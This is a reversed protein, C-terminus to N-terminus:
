PLDRRRERLHPRHCGGCIGPEALEEALATLESRPKGHGPSLLILPLSHAGGAPRADTFANTRVKSLTGAPIDTIEGDKLLLESETPTMYQARHRGPAKAPYWLSLMLERAKSSPLWPDPRSTDKLYLSTTGAPRSGTPAPLYLEAAAITEAATGAAATEAHGLGTAAMAAILGAAAALRSARWPQRLERRTQTQDHIM